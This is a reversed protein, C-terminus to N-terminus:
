GYKRRAKTGVVRPAFSAGKNALRGHTSGTPQNRKTADGRAETDKPEKPEMPKARYRKRNKRKKSGAHVYGPM